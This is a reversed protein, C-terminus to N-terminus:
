RTFAARLMSLILWLAGFAGLAYGPAPVLTALLGGGLLLLARGRAGFALQRRRIGHWPSQVGPRLWVPLLHGAAGSVLPLLFAIVFLPIIGAATAPAVTHLLGHGLVLGLGGAAAVLLPVTDGSGVIKPGWARLAHSLLRLLPWAYALTGLFVLPVWWAAGVGILLAGLVSWKLDASLRQVASPDPSGAITPLLVQLTGLATLGMFGLTNLHLHLVRLAHAQGPLGPAVAVALLGAGLLALAAAYWALCPNPRGLCRQWRWGLWGAFGALAALALWPAALRLVPAGHLFFVVIGLGAALATLPALALWRPAESSRTLVPVFYGMASLIMPLAGVAFVLHWLAAPLWQGSPAGLALGAGAATVAATVPLLRQASSSM